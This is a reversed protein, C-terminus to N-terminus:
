GLTVRIFELIYKRYSELKVLTAVSKLEGDNELIMLSSKVVKALTM